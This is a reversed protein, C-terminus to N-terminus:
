SAAGWGPPSPAAGGRLAPQSAVAGSGLSPLQRGRQLKLWASQAARGGGGGAAVPRAGPRVRVNDASDGEGRQRVLVATESRAYM